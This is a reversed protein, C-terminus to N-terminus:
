DLQRGGQRRLMGELIAGCYRRARQEIDYSAGPQELRALWAANLVDRITVGEDLEALGRSKGRAPDPALSSVLLRARTWGRYRGNPVLEV